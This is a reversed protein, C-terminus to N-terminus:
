RYIMRTNHQSKSDFGSITNGEFILCTLRGTLYAGTDINVRNVRIDVEEVPTHGHVIFKPHMVTSELFPERIWNLDRTEQHALPINPRIGAHCFYYDGNQYSYPLNRLFFQREEGVAVAFKQRTLDVDQGHLLSSPPIGFSMLTEAGGYQRWTVLDETKELASLLMEEHNGRLATASGSRVLEMVMDLVSRSNEGRDILDGLCVIHFGHAPRTALDQGIKDLIRTFAGIEGHLDGIAYIRMGDQTSYPWANSRDQLIESHAMEICYQSLM